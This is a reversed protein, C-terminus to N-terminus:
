RDPNRRLFFTSAAPHASFVRGRHGLEKWQRREKALLHATLPHKALWRESVGLGIRGVAPSIFERCRRHDHACSSLSGRLRLSVLQSRL